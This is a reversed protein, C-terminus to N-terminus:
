EVVLNDCGGPTQRGGRGLFYTQHEQPPGRQTTRNHHSAGGEKTNQLGYKNRGGTAESLQRSEKKTKGRERRERRAEEDIRTIRKGEEWKTLTHM